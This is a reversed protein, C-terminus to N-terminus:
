EKKTVRKDLAPKHQQGQASLSRLYDAVADRVYVNTNTIEKTKLYDQYNASEIIYNNTAMVYNGSPDIPVGDIKVEIAKENEIVYTLSSSSPWGGKSAMFDCLMQVEVGSLVVTVLMNDFPMLQYVHSLTIDGKGITKIRLGSANHIAFHVDGKTYREAMIETADAAFNGLTSEPSGLNMAKTSVILVENMQADMKERYPSLIAEVRADDQSSKEELQYDQYQVDTTHYSTHCGSM